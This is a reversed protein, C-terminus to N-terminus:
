DNYFQVRTESYLYSGWEYEDGESIGVNSPPDAAVKFTFFGLLPLIILLGLITITIIKNKKM